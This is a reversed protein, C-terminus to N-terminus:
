RVFSIAIVVLACLLFSWVAWAEVIRDLLDRFAQVWLDLLDIM